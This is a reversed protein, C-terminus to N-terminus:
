GALQKKRILKPLVTKEFSCNDVPLLDLVKKNFIFFGIDVGNVNKHERKKDYVEVLGNKNVFINNKTCNDINSYVTVLGETHKKKYFSYLENLRLPWYNDGYLLLFTEDILKKAKRIRTGTDDEAPSYSYSISLDFKRGDKFYEEIQEHLYGTLILVKEIGNSKLLEVIYELFPKGHILIMPKPTTLTLPRMRLGQGGALIVAQKISLM